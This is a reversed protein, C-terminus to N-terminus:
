HSFQKWCSFKGYNLFESETVYIIKLVILHDNWHHKPAFLGINKKSTTGYKLWDFVNM